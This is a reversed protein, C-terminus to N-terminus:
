QHTGFALKKIDDVNMRIQWYRSSLDIKSFVMSGSLEDLLEEIVLIIPFRDKMTWVCVDLEM